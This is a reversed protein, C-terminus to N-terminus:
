EDKRWPRMNRAEWVGVYPRQTLQFGEVDALAYRDNRLVPKVEYPGKFQPILKKPGGPTSDFNRVEVLDGESYVHPSRRKKDVYAKNYAQSKAIAKAASERVAPLDRSPEECSVMEKFADGSKQPLGFLLVSPCEGTSKHVTNNLAFEVKELAKYWHLGTTDDTIKALAPIMVRNVREAQGNAQPSGTAVKIHTVENAKVFEEFESSTFCPGRDTIIRKPRSYSQFFESLHKVTEKTNTTKCPYLRTFKTFGDTVVLIYKYQRSKDIPGDHDAHITSFPVVDKPINHLEGEIKGSSPQFAICKLCNHVHEQM